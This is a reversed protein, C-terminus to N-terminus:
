TLLVGVGNDVRFLRALRVAHRNILVPIIQAIHDGHSNPVALLFVVKEEVRGCAVCPDHACVALGVRTSRVLCEAFFVRAGELYSLSNLPLQTNSFM